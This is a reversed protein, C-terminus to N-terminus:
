FLLVGFFSVIFLAVTSASIAAAGSSVDPSGGSNESSNSTANRDPSTPPIPVDLVKIIMKQGRECHGAVGSVFFFLGPRDLSVITDGNNSFLIPHFSHCKNYEEETVIMISGKEYKFGVEM